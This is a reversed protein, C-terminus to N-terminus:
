LAGFGHHDEVIAFVDEVGGRSEGDTQRSAAGPSLIRQVLWTASSTSPSATNSSSGRAIESATSNNV